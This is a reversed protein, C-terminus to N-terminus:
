WSKRNLCYVDDRERIFGDNVIVASHYDNKIVEEKLYENWDGYPYSFHFVSTGTYEELKTKSSLIEEMRNICTLLSLHQHSNTHSGVTCLNDSSLQRLESATLCLRDNLRTNIEEWKIHNREFWRKIGSTTLMSLEAHFRDYFSNKENISEITYEKGDIEIVQKDKIIEELIFWWLFAKHTIFDTSVYIIFPINHKKFIPYAVTLNDKYGDDLTLVIYKKLLLRREAKIRLLEDLSVFQYGSKKYEIITNELTEPSIFLRQNREIVSTENSVRHLMILEGIVPNNIKKLIRKVKSFMIKLKGKKYPINNHVTQKEIIVNEIDTHWRYDSVSDYERLIQISKMQIMNIDMGSWLGEPHKRYVSTMMKHYAIKGHEALSIHLIWDLLTVDFIFSEISSLVQNRIVCSSLNDVCNNEILEEFSINYYSKSYYTYFSPHYSNDGMDFCLPRNASEVYEENNELFTVHQQVHYPSCWWDDGEIIAVYDGTCAEFARKYNKVHGMNPQSPLYVFQCPVKKEYSHIIELTRDTSADDAVILRTELDTPLHQLLIGEMAQAVYQEQNYTILVIDVKM